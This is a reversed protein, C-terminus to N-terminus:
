ARRDDGTTAKDGIKAELAALCAALRENEERAEIAMDRLEPDSERL